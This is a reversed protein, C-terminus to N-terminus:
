KLKQKSIHTRKLSCKKLLEIIMNVILSSNNIIIKSLWFLITWILKLYRNNKEWFKFCILIIPNICSSGCLSWHFCKWSNSVNLTYNMYSSYLFVCDIVCPRGLISRPYFPSTVRNLVNYTWLLWNYILWLMDFAWVMGVLWLDMQCICKERWFSCSTWWIQVM